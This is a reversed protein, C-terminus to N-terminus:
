IDPESCISPLKKSILPSPTTECDACISICLVVPYTAFSCMSWELIVIPLPLPKSPPPVITVFLLKVRSVPETCKM